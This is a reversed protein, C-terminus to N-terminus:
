NNTVWWTGDTQLGVTGSGHPGTQRAGALTVSRCCGDVGGDCVEQDTQSLYSGGGSRSQWRLKGIQGTSRPPASSPLEPPPPCLSHQPSVTLCHSLFCSPFHVVVTARNLSGSCFLAIVCGHIMLVAAPFDFVPFITQNKGCHQHCNVISSASRWVFSTVKVQAQHQPLQRNFFSSLQKSEPFGAATQLWRLGQAVAVCPPGRHLLSLAFAGGCTQRSAMEPCTPDGQRGVPGPSLFRARSRPLSLPLRPLSASSHLHSLKKFLGMLACLCAPASM